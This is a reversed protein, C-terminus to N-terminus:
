IKIAVIRQILAAGTAIMILAVALMPWGCYHDNFLGGEYKPNIQYLLFALIVPLGSIIWGTIRGQATLVKIEGKLKIRERITYAIIELIEALNGGVERQINVATNVLDLDESPIRDLLHELATEQSLGLQIERVVRKYETASPEPAEKAIADLSQMTSYGSRLSNVWLGLVDPLQGEFQSLRRGKRFGVYLQPIFLGIIAFIFAAIISGPSIITFAIAGLVGASVVHFLAYEGLSLKLDARALNVRWSGGMTTSSLRRDLQKVAASTQRGVARSKRDSVIVPASASGGFVGLREQIVASNQRRIVVAGGVVVLLALLGAIGLVVSPNM